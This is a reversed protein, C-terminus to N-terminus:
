RTNSTDQKLCKRLTEVQETKNKSKHQNINGALRSATDFKCIRGVSYIETLLLSSIIGFEVRAM